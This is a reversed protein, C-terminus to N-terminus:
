KRNSTRWKDMDNRVELAVPNWVAHKVNISVVRLLNHHPNRVANRHANLIIGGWKDDLEHQVALRIENRINQNRM